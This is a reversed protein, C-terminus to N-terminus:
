PLTKCATCHTGEGFSLEVRAHSKCNMRRQKQPWIVQLHRQQQVM